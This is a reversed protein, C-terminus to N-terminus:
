ASGEPASRPQGLRLVLAIVRAVAEYHAPPIPRGLEATAYLLRALPPDEIVPVGHARALDRIRQAMLDTGKAVVQPALDHGQRYRLAVAYHVPNTVVVTAKPVEAMMRRRAREMRIARLRQRVLPDGETEKLEERIDRRSMRMRRMFDARQWAYDLAALIAVALCIAVALRLILRHLLSAFPEPAIEPSARILDIAPYLAIAAASVAVALKALSKAFEVLTRLSFLRRAGALPSIREAKPQLATANWVIANQLASALIAALALSLLPVILLLATPRLMSLLAERIADSEPSVADVHGFSAWALERLLAAAPSGAVALLLTATAFLLLTHVERSSPVQGEERAKELRRPTPAETRESQDEPEAM